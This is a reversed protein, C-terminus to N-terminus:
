SRGNEGQRGRAVAAGGNREALLLKCSLDSKQCFDQLLAVSGDTCADEAFLVEFDRFRQEQISELTAALTQAANYVPIILSVKM